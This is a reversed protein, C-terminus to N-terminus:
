KLLLDDLIKSAALFEKNEETPEAMSLDEVRKQVRKIEVEDPHTISAGWAQLDSGCKNIKEKIGLLGPEMNGVLSWADSIVKECDDRTLWAEEFRFARTSRGRYKQAFRAHLLVPRHDSAHSFLHIVSSDQFKERWGTNTVVRDLREQTNELRPRKNNWTFPYGVFGMDALNCDDLLIRFEDM